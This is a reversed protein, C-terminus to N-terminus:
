RKAFAGAQPQWKDRTVRGKFGELNNDVWAVEDPTWAAIQDFHYYGLEFLMKEMKPGVGVIKKLDDARGARPGSLGKPKLGGVAPEAAVAVAPMTAVAAAAGSTSNNGLRETLRKNEIRLAEAVDREKTSRARCADLNTRLDDGEKRLANVEAKLPDLGDNDDRLYRWILWGLALGLLFTCIMYLFMQTLLYSM